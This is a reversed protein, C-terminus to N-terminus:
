YRILNISSIGGKIFIDIKKDATDYDPSKYYGPKVKELGELDRAVLFLDSKMSCAVNEPVYITLKAAGMEVDMLTSDYKDGLKVIVDSAGTKISLNRIKFNKLDFRAKAAGFNMDFDWVPKDNLHLKLTNKLKGGDLEIDHDGALEVDLYATSDDTYSDIIYDAFEGQAETEYFRDTFNDIEFYGAGSKFNLKAYNVSPLEDHMYETYDNIDHSYTECGNFINMVFGFILLAMFIGFLLNIVHRIFTDRFIILGGWFVFILPWINWIFDYSSHIWDYKYAFILAGITLFFFGWFLQGSKM